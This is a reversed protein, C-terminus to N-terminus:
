WGINEYFLTITDGKGGGDFALVIILTNCGCPVEVIDSCGSAPPRAAAVVKCSRWGTLVRNRAAMTMAGVLLEQRREAGVGRSGSARARPKM